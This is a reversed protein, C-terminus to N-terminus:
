AQPIRPRPQSSDGAIQALVRETFELREAMDAVDLRTAEVSDHLHEIAEAVRRLDAPNAQGRRHVWARTVIWLGTIVSAATILMELVNEVQYPEM